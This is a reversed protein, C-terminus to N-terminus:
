FALKLLLVVGIVIAVLTLITLALISLGMTALGVPAKPTSGRTFAEEIEREV